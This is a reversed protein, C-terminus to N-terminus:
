VVPGEARTETARAWCLEDRTLSLEICQGEESIREVDGPLLRIEWGSCWPGAEMLIQALAWNSEEMMLGSVSGVDGDLARIRYGIVDRASRLELDCEVPEGFSPAGAEGLGARRRAGPEQWCFPTGYYGLYDVENRLTLPLYSVMMPSDEIQRRTLRVSIPHEDTEHGLLSGAEFAQRHLLVKRSSLWSGTDVLLYRVQWSRSHFLFDRVHGIIGDCASLKRGYLSKLNILM